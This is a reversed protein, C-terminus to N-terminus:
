DYFRLESLKILFKNALLGAITSCITAFITTAIIETPNNSGAGIRLALVTTPILTVSSTNIVLFTCMSNTACNKNPNLEQLEKMAKIGLPTACNGLGLFNASLNMMIAAIAAGEKSLEPFLLKSFPKFLKAFLETLKGEEAIKMIGLWLAMPGILKVVTMVSNEASQLIAISVEEMRGNIGATIVGTIIMLFWIKNLM